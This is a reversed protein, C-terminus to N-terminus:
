TLIENKILSCLFYNETMLTKTLTKKGMKNLSPKLHYILFQEYAYAEIRDVLLEDFVQISWNSFGGNRKIVKYLKSNTRDCDTKHKNFRVIPNNTYGIYFDSIKKDNCCIIYFYFEEMKRM